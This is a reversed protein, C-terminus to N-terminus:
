RGGKSKAKQRRAKSEQIKTEVNKKQGTGAPRVYIRSEFRLDVYDIEPVREHLAASLALYSELRELFRDDGLHIVASEGSLIVHVNRPDAVDVQSLRQFIEPKARLTSIVSAALEARAEDTAEGARGDAASLGDVIPLDLDAYQPGDEDIVIGREDVLYLDGKIREVAAPERESIVIEITSPISRKLSADRVWPTSRLRDRWRDLDAWLLSEGQLGTLVAQVEGTSLRANGRVVLREVSFVRTHALAGSGWYVASGVAVAALAYKAAAGVLARWARRRAPKVHARHFRRDAPAAVGNM